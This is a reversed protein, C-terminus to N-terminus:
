INNKIKRFDGKSFKIFNRLKQYDQEKSYLMTNINRFCLFTSFNDKREDSKLLTYEAINQGIM